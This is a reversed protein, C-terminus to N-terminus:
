EKGKAKRLTERLNALADRSEDLLAERSAGKLDDYLKKNMRLERAEKGKRNPKNLLMVIYAIQEYNAKISGVERSAADLEEKSVKGERHARDLERVNDLMEAYLSEQELFYRIVHRRAMYEGEAREHKGYIMCSRIFAAAM